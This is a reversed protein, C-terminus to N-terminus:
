SPMSKAREVIMRFIGLSAADFRLMKEAALELRAFADEQGAEFMYVDVLNVRSPM